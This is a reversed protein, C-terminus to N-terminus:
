RRQAIFGALSQWSNALCTFGIELGVYRFNLLTHDGSVLVKAPPIVEGWKVSVFLFFSCSLNVCIVFFQSWASCTSRIKVCSFMLCRSYGGDSCGNWYGPCFQVCKVFKRPICVPSDHPTPPPPQPPSANSVPFM